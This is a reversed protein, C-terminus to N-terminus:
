DVVSVADTVGSFPAGPESVICLLRASDTGTLRWREQLGEPLGLYDGAELAITEDNVIDIEISGSLLYIGTPGTTTFWEEVYDGPDVKYEAIGISEQTAFAIVRGRTADIRDAMPLVQGEHARVLTAVVPGHAPLLDGPQVGLAAALRYLTSISPASVGREIQSLFPQSIGARNALERSSLQEKERLAAVVRGVRVEEESMVKVM